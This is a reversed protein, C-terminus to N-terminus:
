AATWSLLSINSVLNGAGSSNEQMMGFGIQDATLFDTRGISHLLTWSIGDQSGYMKRNTNDDQIRLWPFWEQQFSTYDASYTVSDTMKRSFFYPASSHMMALEHIKGSASARFFLCYGYYDKKQLNVAFRATLTYPVAPSALYLGNLRAGSAGSGPVSMFITNSADVATATSQNDWTFAAVLPPQTGGPTLLRDNVLQPLSAATVIHKVSAADLHSAATSGEAGRTVTLTTGSIATVLMIESDIIIRWNGLTTSPAGSASTIVVSTTSNNIAGNLTTTYNNAFRELAM